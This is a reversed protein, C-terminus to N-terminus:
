KEEGKVAKTLEDEPDAVDFLLHTLKATLLPSLLVISTAVSVADLNVAKGLLEATAEASKSLFEEKTITITDM